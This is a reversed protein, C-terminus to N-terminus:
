YVPWCMSLIRLRVWTGFRDFLPGSIGGVALQLFASLSGIWAIKDPSENSLQHTEYYQQFVGFSNSYGLTAFLVFCAGTAVLWARLGGEPAEGFDIGVKEEDLETVINSKQEEEGLAVAHESGSTSM